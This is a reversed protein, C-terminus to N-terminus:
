SSILVCARIGDLAGVTDRAQLWLAPSADGGRLKEAAWCVGLKGHSVIAEVVCRAVM